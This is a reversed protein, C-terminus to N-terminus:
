LNKKLIYIVESANFADKIEKKLGEEVKKVTIYIKVEESEKEVNDIRYGLEEYDSPLKEPKVRVLISVPKYGNKLYFKETDGGAGLSLSDGNYEKIQEELFSLTKSGIGQGWYDGKVCIGGLILKEDEYKAWAFSILEEDEYCGVFLSPHEKYYKKYYELPNEEIYTNHLEAAKELDEEPIEKIEYEEGM